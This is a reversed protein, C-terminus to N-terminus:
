KKLIVLCIEQKLMLNNKSKIKKQLKISNFILNIKLKMRINYITNIM